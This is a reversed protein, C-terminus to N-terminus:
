GGKIFRKRFSNNLELVYMGRKFKSIDLVYEGKLTKSFVVKGDVSYINVKYHEYNKSKFVIKNCSIYVNVDSVNEILHSSECITYLSGVSSITRTTDIIVSGTFSIEYQNNSTFSISNFNPTFNNINCPSCGDGNKDLKVIFVSFGTYNNSQSGVIAFGSDPTQISSYALVNDGILKAWQFQDLSDFRIIFIRLNYLLPYNGVLAYGKDYTPVISTIEFSGLNNIWLINGLSDMKGFYNKYSFYYNNGVQAVAYKYFGEPFAFFNIRKGFENYGNLDYKMIIFDGGYAYGVIIFGNDTTKYARFGFIDGAGVNNINFKHYVINGDKGIKMILIHRYPTDPEYYGKASGIIYYGSDNAQIISYFNADIASDGSLSSTTLIRINKNWLINGNQDLKAIIGISNYPSLDKGGVLVYNGEYDQIISRGIGGNFISIVKNWKLNGLSDLKITNMGANTYGTIIYGKDNTLSISYGEDDNSSNIVKCFTLNFIIFIM